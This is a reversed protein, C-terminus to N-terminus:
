MSYDLDELFLFPEEEDEEEANCSPADGEIITGGSEIITSITAMLGDIKANLVDIQEQMKFDNMCGVHQAPEETSNQVGADEEDHKEIDTVERADDPDGMVEENLEEDEM